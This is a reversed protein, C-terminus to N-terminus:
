LDRYFDLKRTTPEGDILRETTGHNLPRVLVCWVGVPAHTLHFSRYPLYKTYRHCQLRGYILCPLTCAYKSHLCTHTRPHMHTPRCIHANWIRVGDLSIFHRIHIHIPPHQTTSRQVDSHYTLPIIITWSDMLRERRRSRRRGGRREMQGVMWGARIDLTHGIHDFVFLTAGAYAVERWQHRLWWVGVGSVSSTHCKRPLVYGLYM